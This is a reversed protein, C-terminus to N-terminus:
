YLQNGLVDFRVYNESKHCEICDATRHAGLLPFRSAQHIETINTVLWSNPTHCRGCDPGTTSQHVDLHCENCETRAESFVLSPHCQRCSVETHSGRLPLKTRNHDFSYVATDIQWGKASHCTSCSVKFDKGHPSETKQTFFLLYLGIILLSLFRM